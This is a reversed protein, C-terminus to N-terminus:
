SVESEPENPFQELYSVIVKKGKSRLKVVKTKGAVLESKNLLELAPWQSKRYGLELEHGYLNETEKKGDIMTLLKESDTIKEYNDYLEIATKDLQKYTLNIQDDSLIYEAYEKNIAKIIHELAFETESSIHPINDFTINYFDEVKRLKRFYELYFLSDTKIVMDEHVKKKIRGGGELDIVVTHGCSFNYFFEFFEIEDSINGFDKRHEISFKLDFRITNKDNRVEEFNVVLSGSKFDVVIKKEYKTAYAKFSVNKKEYGSEIFRIDFKGEFPINEITLKVLNDYKFISIDGSKFIFDSLQEADITIGEPYRGENFEYFKRALEM